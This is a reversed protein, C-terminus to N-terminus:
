QKGGRHGCKKKESCGCKPKKKKCHPPKKCRHLRLCCRFCFPLYFYLYLLRDLTCRFPRTIFRYLRCFIRNEWQSFCRIIRACSGCSTQTTPTKFTFCVHSGFIHVSCADYGLRILADAFAQTMGCDAFTICFDTCLSDPQSFIGMRFAALWWHPMALVAMDQEGADATRKLKMYFIPIADDPVTHFLERSRQAPPVIGDACYIGIEAGTNIGYQGKWFELLWTRNDYDFYVPECDFVMNLYPAACDFSRTYGFKRQWADLTSFFTDKHPLYQYGFPHILENLMRCKEEQPMSCVKQIVCKKRWHNLLFCLLALIFFISFFLYM